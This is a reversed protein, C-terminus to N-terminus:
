EMAEGNEINEAQLAELTETSWNRTKPDFRALLIKEIQAREDPFMVPRAKGNNKANQCNLCYFPEGPEAVLADRCDPCVVIWDSAVVQAQIPDGRIDWDPKAGPWRAELQYAVFNRYGGRKRVSIQQQATRILKVITM